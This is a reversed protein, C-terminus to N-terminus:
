DARRATIVRRLDARVKATLAGEAQDVLQTMQYAVTKMDCGTSTLVALGADDGIGMFFFYGRSLRIIILECNGKGFLAASNRALGLLGAAIAALQEAQDKSVSGSAVLPFGDSSLVLAHTVGPAREAFGEILGAVDVPHEIANM